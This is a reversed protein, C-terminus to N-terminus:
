AAFGIRAKFGEAEKIILASVEGNGRTPRVTLGPEPRLNRFKLLIEM